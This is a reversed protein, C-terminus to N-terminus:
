RPLEPPKETERYIGLKRALYNGIVTIGTSAIKSLMPGMHMVYTFLDLFVLNVACGAAAVIYILAAEKFFDRSANGSKNVVSANKFTTARGLLMNVLTSIVYAAVFSLNQGWGLSYVFAFFLVWEVVTATGGVILYSMFQSVDKRRTENKIFKFPM